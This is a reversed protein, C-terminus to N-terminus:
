RSEKSRWAAIAWTFILVSALIAFVLSLPRPFENGSSVVRVNLQTAAQRDPLAQSYAQDLVVEMFDRRSRYRVVSIFEWPQVASPSAVPMSFVPYGGKKLWLPLMARSFRDLAQEGSDPNLQFLNVVHVPKGDDARMFTAVDLGQLFDRTIPPLEDVRQMYSNVEAETLPSGGIRYWLATTLMLLAAIVAIIFVPRTFPM